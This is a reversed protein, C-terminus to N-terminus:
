YRDRDDKDDARHRRTDPGFRDSESDILNRVNVKEERSAYIIHEIKFLTNTVLNEATHVHDFNNTFHAMFEARNFSLDPVDIEPHDFAIDVTEGAAWPTFLVVCLKRQCSLIASDLIEEWRWNHELVHRMFIAPVESRYTALDVTEAAAPSISGDIGRYIFGPPTVDKLVERMYGRGCGWDEVMPQDRLFNAALRYTTADGYSAPPGNNWDMWKGVNSAKEM